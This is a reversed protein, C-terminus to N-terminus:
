DSGDTHTHTVRSSLVGSGAHGPQWSVLTPGVISDHSTWDASDLLVGTEADITANWLHEESTADITLQWAKRLGNATPQWGLRAPIPAASIGGDSVVTANSGSASIVSLDEPDDLDLAEAAAEVAEAADLDVSGSAGVALNAVLSGAAFVVKGNAGVNITSHGGFVELGQYRQNLNVHTVGNHDSRYNSTTFLDTVDANTVGLSAANEDVYSLAIALAEDASITDAPEASTASPAIAAVLVGVM